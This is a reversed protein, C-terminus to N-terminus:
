LKGEACLGIARIPNTPSRVIGSRRPPRQQPTTPYRNHEQAAAARKRPDDRRITRIGEPM